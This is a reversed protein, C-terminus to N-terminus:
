SLPVEAIGSRVNLTTGFAASLRQQRALIREAVEGSALGATGRQTPPLARSLDVPYMTLAELKGDRFRLSPVIAEWIADAEHGPADVSRPMVKQFFGSPALEELECNDYIEQPIQWITEAQFYL